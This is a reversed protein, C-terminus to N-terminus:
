RWVVKHNKTKESLDEYLYTYDNVRFRIKSCAMEYVSQIKETLNATSYETFDRTNLKNQLLMDDYIRPQLWEVIMAEALIDIEVLSLDQTFEKKDFDMFKANKLDKEYKSFASELYLILIENRDDELLSLLEYSKVKFLFKDCVKSFPTAM